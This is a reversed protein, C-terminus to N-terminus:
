VKYEIYTTSHESRCYKLTPCVGIIKITAPMLQLFYDDIMSLISTVVRHMSYVYEVYVQRDIAM